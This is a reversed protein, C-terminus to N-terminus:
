MPGATILSEFSEERTYGWIQRFEQDSLPGLSEYWDSWEPNIEAGADAPYFYHPTPEAAMLAARADFGILEERIEEPTLLDDDSGLEARRRRSLFYAGLGAAIIGAGIFYPTKSAKAM